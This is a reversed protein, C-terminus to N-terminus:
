SLLPLVIVPLLAVALLVIPAIRGAVPNEPAAKRSAGSLARRDIGAVGGRVSLPGEELDGPWLETLLRRSRALHADADTRMAIPLASAQSSGIGVAAGAAALVGAALVRGDEVGLVVASILLLAGAGAALVGALSLLSFVVSRRWLGASASRSRADAREAASPALIRALDAPTLADEPLRVDYPLDATQDLDSRDFDSPVPWAARTFRQAARESRHRLAVATAVLTTAAILALPFGALIRLLPPSSELIGGSLLALAAALGAGTLGSLVVGASVGWSMGDRAAATTEDWQRLRRARREM